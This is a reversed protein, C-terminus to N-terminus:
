GHLPYGSFRLDILGNDHVAERFGMIRWPPHDVRSRKDENSLLDNFDGMFTDSSHEPQEIGLLELEYFENIRAPRAMLGAKIM